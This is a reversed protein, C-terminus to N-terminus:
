LLPFQLLGRTNEEFGVLDRVDVEWLELGVLFVPLGLVGLFVDELALDVLVSTSMRLGAAM